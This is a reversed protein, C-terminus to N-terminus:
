PALQIPKPTEMVTTATKFDIRSPHSKENPILNENRDMYLVPHGFSLFRSLSLTHTYIYVLFTLSAHYIRRTLTSLAYALYLVFFFLVNVFRNFVSGSSVAATSHTTM